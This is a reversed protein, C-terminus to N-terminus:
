KQLFLGLYDSMAEAFAIRSGLNARRVPVSQLSLVGVSSRSERCALWLPRISFLTTVIGVKEGGANWAESWVLV